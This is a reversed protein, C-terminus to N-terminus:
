RRSDFDYWDRLRELAAAIQCHQQVRERALRNRQRDLTAAIDTEAGRVYGGVPPGFSHVPRITNM